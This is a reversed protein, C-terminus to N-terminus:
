GFSAVSKLEKLQKSLLVGFLNCVHLHFSISNLIDNGKFIFHISYNLTLYKIKVLYTILGIRIKMKNWKWEWIHRLITSLTDSVRNISKKEDLQLVAFCCRCPCGFVPCSYSSKPFFYNKPTAPLLQMGLNCSYMSNIKLM